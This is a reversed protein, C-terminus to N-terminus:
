VVMPTSHRSTGKETDDHSLTPIKRVIYVGKEPHELIGQECLEKLVRLLQRSSVNISQALRGINSFRDGPKAKQLSLCVRKKLSANRSSIVAGNLKNALCRCLHLLFVSDNLLQERYQELYVALTYVTTKAEVFFPTFRADILEVDGLITIDNNDTLLTIVSEEDPMEYLLLDGDVIFQLYQSPSFPTTLLEGPSYRLLLFPPMASGFLERIKRSDLYSKMLKQDQITEM